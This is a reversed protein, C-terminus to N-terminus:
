VRWGVASASGPAGLSVQSSGAGRGCTLSAWPLGRQRCFWTSLGQHMAVQPLAPSTICPCVTTAFIVAAERRFAGPASVQLKGLKRSGGQEESNQPHTSKWANVLPGCLPILWNSLGGSFHVTHLPLTSNSCGPAAGHAALPFCHSKIGWSQPQQM